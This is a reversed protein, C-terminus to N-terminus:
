GNLDGIEINRENNSNIFDEKRLNDLFVILEKYKEEDDKMINRYDTIEANIQELKNNLDNSLIKKAKEQLTTRRHLRYLLFLDGLVIITILITSLVKNNLTVFIGIIGLINVVLLIVILDKADDNFTKNLHITLDNAIENRNQGDITKTQFDNISINIDNRYLKANKNDLATKIYEKSLALALKQTENSVKYEQNFIVINTLLNILDVRDEYVTQQKRFLEEAKERDGNCSVLLKNKLNSKQFENEQDEYDYILEKIIQDIEKHSYKQKTVEKFEDLVHSYSSTIALNNKLLGVNQCYQELVPMTIVKDETKDIYDTWKAVVQDKISSRQALRQEWDQIKNLVITKSEDGFTGTAILDLVTVFDKSLNSPDQISLYRNLWNISTDIRNFRYNILCFFIATKEQDQKMANNLERDANEKDNLLWSALCALSNSLWYNPNNLILDERLKILSKKTINSNEIASILAETTRRVTDYFGFKKEIQENNYMISQRANTMITTERIEKVLNKVEDNLSAVKAEVNNVQSNVSNVNSIVGSLEKAVTGLNEEIADLNAASIALAESM